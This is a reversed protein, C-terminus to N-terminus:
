RSWRVLYSGVPSYTVTEGRRRSSWLRGVRRRGAPSHSRRRRIAPPPQFVNFSIVGSDNYTTVAFNGAVPPANVGVRITVTVPDSALGGSDQVYYQFSGDGSFRRDPDFEVAGDVLKVKGHSASGPVLVVTLAGNPLDPDTDNGLVPVIVDREEGNRCPGPQGDPPSQRRDHGHRDWPRRLREHGHLLLHRQRQLRRSGHLHVERSWWRPQRRVGSLRRRAGSSPDNAFIRDSDAARGPAFFQDNVLSPSPEPCPSIIITM